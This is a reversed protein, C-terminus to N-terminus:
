SPRASDDGGNGDDAESRIAYLCNDSAYITEDALALHRVSDDFELTWEVDGAAVPVQRIFREDAPAEDSWREDGTELEYAFFRQESVAFVAGVSVTVPREYLTEDPEVSWQETGDDADLAHVGEEMATLYVVGDVVAVPGGHSYTWDIAVPPEPGRETPTYRNNGAGGRLSTWGDRENSSADAEVNSADTKTDDNAVTM